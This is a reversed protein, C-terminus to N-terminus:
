VIYDPSVRKDPAGRYVFFSYIASVLATSVASGTVVAVLAIGDVVFASILCIFGVGFFLRGALRHTKEWTFESSLTWPTRIGLFWNQRTKPLYNGLVIFLIGTGAIVVRVFENSQMQDGASQLMMYAIGGHICLFLIMTSIWVANYAKRSKILNDRMPEIQPLVCFVLAGFLSMGPLLWLLMLAETKDSFRDPAGSADWHVPINDAPLQPGAWLSIGAMLVLVIASVILGTRIM